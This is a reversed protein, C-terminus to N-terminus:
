NSGVDPSRGSQDVDPSPLSFAARVKGQEKEWARYEDMVHSIELLPLQLAPPCVCRTYIHLGHSPTVRMGAHVRAQLQRTFLSRVREAQKTKDGGQGAALVDQEYKRHACHQLEYVQGVQLCHLLHNGGCRYVAWLQAGEAVHLGGATLAAECAARMAKLGTPTFGRVEPDLEVM